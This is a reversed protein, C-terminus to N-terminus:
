AGGSPSAGPRLGLTAFRESPRFGFVRRSNGAAVPQGKRLGPLPPWVIAGPLAAWAAARPLVGGRRAEKKREPKARQLRALGSLFFSSIMQPGCGRAASRKGPAIRM